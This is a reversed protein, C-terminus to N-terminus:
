SNLSDAKTELNTWTYRKLGKKKKERPQNSKLDLRYSVRHDQAYFHPRAELSVTTRPCGGPM